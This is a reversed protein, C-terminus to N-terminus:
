NKKARRTWCLNKGKESVSVNTHMGNGNVRHGAQAFLV